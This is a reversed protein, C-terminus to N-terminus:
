VITTPETRICGVATATDGAATVMIVATHPFGARIEPLLQLGSKGPMNIDLLVLAAETGKDELVQWAERAGAAEFCRYGKQSLARGLLKRIGAEDDVILVKEQRASM